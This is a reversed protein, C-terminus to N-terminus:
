ASFFVAAALAAVGVVSIATNPSLVFSGSIENIENIVGQGGTVITGTPGTTPSETPPTETIPPACGCPEQVLPQVLSCEEPSLFGPNSLQSCSVTGQNPVELSAELNTMFMGDPCISCSFPVVDPETGTCGCAEEVPGALQTCYDTGEFYGALAAIEILGCAYSENNMVPFYVDPDLVSNGEGCLYCGGECPLADYLLTNQIMLTPITTDCYTDATQIITNSCDFTKCYTDSGEYEPASVCLNCKTGDVEIECFASGATPIVLSYCYSQVKPETFKYCDTATGTYYGTITLDYTQSYCFTTNDGCVNPVVVCEPTYTCSVSGTYAEMDVGECSCTPYAAEGYCVEFMNSLITSNSQLNRSVEASACYGGLPSEDSQVCYRGAGCSLIGVDAGDDDPDCEKLSSEGSNILRRRNMMRLKEGTPFKQKNLQLVGNRKSNLFEQIRSREGNASSSSTIVHSFAHDNSSLVLPLTEVLVAAAITLRM